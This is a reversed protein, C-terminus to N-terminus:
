IKYWIPWELKKKKGTKVYRFTQNGVHVLEALTPQEDEEEQLKSAIMFCSTVLLQLHRRQVKVQSLFRDLYDVGLFFTEDSFKFHANLSLLWSAAEDRQLDSVGGSRIFVNM